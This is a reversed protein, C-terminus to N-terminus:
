RNNPHMFAVFDGGVLLSQVYAAIYAAQAKNKLGRITLRVYERNGNCWSDALEAAAKLSDWLTEIKYLLHVIIYLM